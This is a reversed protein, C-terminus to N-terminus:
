IRKAGGGKSKKKDPRLVVEKQVIVLSMIITQALYILFDELEIRVCIKVYIIGIKAREKYIHNIGARPYYACHMKLLTRSKRTTDEAWKMIETGYSDVASARSNIEM